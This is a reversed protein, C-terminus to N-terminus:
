LGEQALLAHIYSLSKDLVCFDRLLFTADMICYKM